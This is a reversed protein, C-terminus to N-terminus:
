RSLEWKCREVSWDTLNVCSDVQEPTVQLSYTMAILIICLAITGATFIALDSM